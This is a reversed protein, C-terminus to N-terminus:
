ESAGFTSVISDENGDNEKHRSPSLSRELNVKGWEQYLSRRQADSLANIIDKIKFEVVTKKNKIHTLLELIGISLKVRSPADEKGSMEWSHYAQYTVGHQKCLAVLPTGNVRNEEQIIKYIEKRKAHDERM